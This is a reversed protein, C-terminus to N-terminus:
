CSTPFVSKSICWGVCSFTCGTSLSLSLSLSLPSVILFSCLLLNSISFVKVQSPFSVQLTSILLGSADVTVYKGALKSTLFPTMVQLTLKDALTLFTKLFHQDIM